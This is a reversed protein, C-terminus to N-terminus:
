LDELRKELFQREVDNECLDIAKLYSAKAEDTQQLRRLLDAHTAHFLYYNNLRGNEALQILIDLAVQPSDAFSVAVIYNLIVVSSPTFDLLARYLLAIQKWDTDAFSPAQAHLAVIAAQIQFVGRQRLAIAEDLLNIGEKILVQNWKDRAQSELLILENADTVRTDHRAHHLLMLSLLGLTEAHSQGDLHQNLLKHLTRGLRIAEACLDSAILEKGIPATYGANFIFYIVSLVADLREDLKTVSPVDYPIGADRIKRKTRVLRQAMTAKPVLFAKAIVDTPLGIVTQLTLAVQAEEALAPHCCTFILKLREDRIDSAENTEMQAEEEEQQEFAHLAHLAPLYREATEYRRLRDIVKRRSITMLWAGPNSPIGTKSWQQLAVVLADQLADEALEIDCLTSLLTAIVIRSEQQFIDTIQQHINTAPM